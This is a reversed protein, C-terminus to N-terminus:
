DDKNEKLMGSNALKNLAELESPVIRYPNWNGRGTFAGAEYGDKRSFKIIAKEDFILVIWNKTIHSLEFQQPEWNTAKVTVKM